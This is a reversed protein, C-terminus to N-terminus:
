EPVLLYEAFNEFDYKAAVKKLEALKISKLKNIVDEPNHLSKNYQWHSGLAMFRGMTSEGRLVIRSLMKNRALELDRETFDCPNRFIEKVKDLVKALNDPTTAAYASFMGVGDKLDCDAQATEALGSDVLAWYLKSGVGDGMITGLLGLAYRDEDQASPGDTMLLLHSQKLDKRKFVKNEVPGKFPARDRHVECNSWTSSYEQCKAVFEEWDFNGAIVGVINKTSYRKRFYGRMQEITLDTISQVSGLISNACPHKGFYSSNIQEFFWFTPRDQYLAIEELIVKREMNFDEERLAPLMMDSIIDLGEKVYDGLLSTYYVTSEDSTFANSKAGIAAFQFDIDSATRKETGKFLMHELFHSVGSESGQEDRAGTKVFFGLTTGYTWSFNEGLLTLGNDLTTFYRKVTM